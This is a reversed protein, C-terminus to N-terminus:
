PVRAEVTVVRGGENRSYVVTGRETWSAESGKGLSYASAVDYDRDFAIIRVEGDEGQRLSTTTYVIIRRDADWEVTGGLAPNPIYASSFQSTGVNTLQTLDKGNQKVRWLSPVGTRSTSQFLVVRGDPTWVPESDDFGQTVRTSKGSNANLVYLDSSRVLDGPRHGDPLKAYAARNGDPSVVPAGTREAVLHSRGQNDVRMLQLSTTQYVIIRRDASEESPGGLSQSAVAQSEADALSEAEAGGCAALLLSSAMWM